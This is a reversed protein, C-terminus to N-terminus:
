EGSGTVNQIDLSCVNNWATGASDCTDGIVMSVERQTTDNPWIRGSCLPGSSVAGGQKNILRVVVCQSGPTWGTNTFQCTGSGIGNVQCSAEVHQGIQFAPVFCVALSLGILVLAFSSLTISVSNHRKKDPKTATPRFPGPFSAIPRGCKPCAPAADSVNMGCDQCQILAM